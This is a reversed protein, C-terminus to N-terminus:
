RRGSPCKGYQFSVLIQDYKDVYRASALEFTPFQDKKDLKLCNPRIIIVINTKRNRSKENIPEHM